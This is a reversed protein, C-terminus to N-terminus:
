AELRLYIAILLYCIAADYKGLLCTLLGGIFLGWQLITWILKLM